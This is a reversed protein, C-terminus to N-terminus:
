TEYMWLFGGYCSGRERTLLNFVERASVGTADEMLRLSGFKRLIIGSQTLQVIKYNGM